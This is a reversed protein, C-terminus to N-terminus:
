AAPHARHGARHDPAAVPHGCERAPLLEFRHDRPDHVRHAAVQLLDATHQPRAAHDVGTDGQARKGAKQGLGCRLDGASRLHGAPVDLVVLGPESCPGPLVLVPDGGGGEGVPEPRQPHEEDPDLLPAPALRRDPHRHEGAVQGALVVWQGLGEVVGGGHPQQASRGVARPQQDPDGDLDQQAGPQPDTLEGAQGGVRDHLDTGRGPQVDRDALQALVAVQRQMGMQHLQDVVVAGGVDRGIM